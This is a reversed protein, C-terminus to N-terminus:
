SNVFKIFGNKQKFFDYCSFRHHSYDEEPNRKTIEIIYKQIGIKIDGKDYRKLIKKVVDDLDPTLKICKPLLRDLCNTNKIANIDVKIKSFDQFNNWYDIVEQSPSTKMQKIENNDEKKNGTSLTHVFPQLRPNGITQEKSASQDEKPLSNSSDSIDKEGGAQPPSFPTNTIETTNETNTPRNEVLWNTPKRGVQQDTKSWSFTENQSLTNKGYESLMEIVNQCNLSYFTKAPIGRKTISILELEILKKKASKLESLGLFLESCWDDNTKYFERGNVVGWWFIVQSLLIGATISGTIKTYAPNFAISRGSLAKLIEIEKM